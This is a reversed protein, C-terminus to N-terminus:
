VGLFEDVKDVLWKWWSRKSEKAPQMAEAPEERKPQAPKPATERSAANQQADWEQELRILRDEAEEPTLAELTEVFRLLRIGDYLDKGYCPHPQFREGDESPVWHNIGVKKARVVLEQPIPLTLAKTLDKIAEELGGQKRFLCEGEWWYSPPPDIDYEEKVRAWFANDSESVPLSFPKLVSEKEEKPRDDLEPFVAEVGIVSGDNGRLVVFPTLTLHVTTPRHPHQWNEEEAKKKLRDTMAQCCSLMRQRETDLAALYQKRGKTGESIDTDLKLIHVNDLCARFEKSKQFLKEFEEDAKKYLPIAAEYSHRLDEKIAKALLRRPERLLVKLKEWDGFFSVDQPEMIADAPGYVTSAQEEINSVDGRVNWLMGIKRSLDGFVTDEKGKPVRLHLGRRAHGSFRIMDPIRLGVLEGSVVVRTKNGHKRFDFHWQPRQIARLKLKLEEAAVRDVHGDVMERNSGPLPLRSRETPAAAIDHAPKDQVVEGSKEQGNPLLSMPDIGNNTLIDELTPKSEQALVQLSARAKRVWLRYAIGYAGPSRGTKYPIPGANEDKVVYALWSRWRAEEMTENSPFPTTETSKDPM